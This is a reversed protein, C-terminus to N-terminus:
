YSWGKKAERKIGTPLGTYANINAQVRAIPGTKYDYVFAIAGRKQWNYSKLRHWENPVTLGPLFEVSVGQEEFASPKSSGKRHQDGCHWERYSTEAWDKPRENAMLSALRVAGVSHGHDYGILTTGYRYFKYPSSSADVEVDKANHYYAWLVHGMTYSSQRDHNGPIQRIKVPAIKRLTEVLAIALKVGRTYVHQWSMAEPQPTGATTTHFLGDHHLFDNGFPFVIEEIPWYPKSLELLSHAAWLCIDECDELSYAKDSGPAFCHMGFHPDMLCVELARRPSGAKLQRKLAPVVLRNKKIEELIRELAQLEPQKRRFWIKVQWLETVALQQRRAKPHIPDGEMILDKKALIDYKGALVREIEWVTTDIKCEAIVDEVTRRTKSRMTLIQGTETTDVERSEAKAILEKLQKSEAATLKGKLHTIFDVKKKSRRAM